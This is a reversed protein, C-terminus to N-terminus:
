RQCTSKFVEQINQTVVELSFREKCIQRCKERLHLLDLRSLNEIIAKALSKPSTDISVLDPDIEGLVEPIAGVPTGVVPVGSALAELIVLGFGELDTSPLVFLDAAQYYVPLMNEPIFGLLHVYESLGLAQIQRALSEKLYGDGGILLLVDSRENVLIKMAELLNELGMRKVLRRVTLLIRKDQPLGLKDRALAIDSPQFRAVDVGLPILRIKYPPVHYIGEVQNRSFVSRTIVIEARDLIIRELAKIFPIILLFIQGMANGFKGGKAEIEVEKFFPSHFTYV